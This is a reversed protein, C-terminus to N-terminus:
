NTLNLDSALNENPILVYEDDVSQNNRSSEYEVEDSFFDNIDNPLPIDVTPDIDEQYDPLVNVDVYEEVTFPSMSRPSGPEAADSGSNKPLM